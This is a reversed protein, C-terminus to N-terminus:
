QLWWGWERGLVTAAGTYSLLSVLTLPIWTTAGYSQLQSFGSGRPVNGGYHRSQYQSAFSGKQVGRSRFGLCWIVLRVPLFCLFMTTQGALQSLRLFVGFDTSASILLLAGAAKYPQRISLNNIERLAFLMGLLATALASSAHSLINGLVKSWSINTLVLYKQSIIQNVLQKADSLVHSARSVINNSLKSWDINQLDIDRQSAAQDVLQRAETLADSARSIINSSVESWDINQPDLDKQSIAQSIRQKAETLANSWNSWDSM